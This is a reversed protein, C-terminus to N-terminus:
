YKSQGDEGTDRTVVLNKVYIIIIIIIVIIIIVCCETLATAM